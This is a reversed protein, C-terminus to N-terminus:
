ATVGLSLRNADELRREELTPVRGSRTMPGNVAVLVLAPQRSRRPDSQHPRDGVRWHFPHLRRSGQRDRLRPRNPAYSRCFVRRLSGLELRDKLLGSRCDNLLDPMVRDAGYLAFLEDRSYAAKWDCKTCAVLIIARPEDRLRYINLGGRSHSGRAQRRARPDALVDAWWAEGTYELPHSWSRGSLAERAQLMAIMLRSIEPRDGDLRAFNPGTM